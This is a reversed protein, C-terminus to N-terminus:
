PFDAALFDMTHKPLCLHIGDFYHLFRRKVRGQEKLKESRCIARLTPLYEAAAAQRSGLSAFAQSSFVDRLAAERQALVSPDLPAAPSFCFGQRHPGVPLTLEEIADRGLEQCLVQSAEWSESLVAQCKRLSLDALAARREGCDERRWWPDGDVREEDSLGNKIRSASWAFGGRRCIDETGPAEPSLSSDLFSAHDLFEALSGLCRSVLESRRQEAASKPENGTKISLVEPDGPGGEQAPEARSARAATKRLSLFGEESESDSEFMDKGKLELWRRRRMVHSAKVPSDEERLEGGVEPRATPLPGVQADVPGQLVGVPLPLLEELNCYLLDVGQRQCEALLVWRRQSGPVTSVQGKFVSPPDLAPAINHLGLMAETCGTDCRPLGLPTERAPPPAAGKADVGGAAGGGRPAGVPAEAAPPPLPRHLKRGGGSRVWFQLHLLSRRIDCKNLSLLSSFDRADTRVNEALCLLQLYSGVNVMSPTKFHIEEFHGDFLSSFTPDSTTLIVPRKTTAMFTKIAALFGSDDEFIVDVEEFLILSTAAKKGPEEASGDRSGAPKSLAERGQSGSRQDALPNPSGSDREGRKEQSGTDKSKLRAGTKFFSALSTPALGGKKPSARRPSKRPSSVVRRPSNGKRPSGGPRSTSTSTSNFYAPKHANVGQIDVQHSQTAEKLQSLIQRGSRQSSANVEFVKFGLEQACAYVTATKGVGPPGTILVTNCLLDEEGDEGRFDGCDWADASDDEQRKERLKKKEECDARLKWEKLWSHLKKVAVSNGIVESSHQPQYKETWLVDEKVGDASDGEGAAAGATPSDDLVVAEGGDRDPRRRRRARGPRGRGALEAGGTRAGGLATDPSDDAIVIVDEEGGATAAARQRKTAGGAGGAGGEGRKRKGGAPLQPVPASCPMGPAAAMDSSQLLLHESRKKLFWNFFRRVPFLPNSARIEELLCRRVQESFDESCGPGRSTRARPAPTTKFGVLPGPLGTPQPPGPDGRLHKLLRSTPWPLSWLPCDPTEQLVHVVPLFSACSTAYAERSAAMKAIQRKFSEPLGSKLFERRARFQEDDQSNESEDRSSDDFISIIGSQKQAKKGLFLPAVNSGAPSKAAKSAATNKGLVDNLSRLQQTQAAPAPGSDRRVDEVLLVSDEDECYTKRKLDLNRSSRRPTGREEPAAKSKSQQLARAKEVLRKAKRRSKLAGPKKSRLPTMEFDSGDGAKRGSRPYVRSFRMRIPSEKDDPPSLMESRYVGSRFSHARPTSVRAPSGQSSAAGGAGPAPSTLPSPSSLQRASGRTLRRAAQGRVPTSLPTVSSEGGAEAEPEGQGLPAGEAAAPTAAIVPTEGVAGAQKKRGRKKLRSAGPECAPAEETAGQEKDESGAAGLAEASPSPGEGAPDEGPEAEEGPQGPTQDCGDKQKGPGKRAKGRLSEGAPQKFANMFQKREAQSCKPKAAAEIVALELDQEELVVNSRRKPMAPLLETREAEAPESTRGQAGGDEGKRVFISAVRRALEPSRPGGSDQHVEAQVTLTRPSARQPAGPDADARVDVGGPAVAVPEPSEPDGRKEEAQEEQQQKQSELFDEFSITVTSDNLRSAEDVHVELSTDCLSPESEQSDALPQPQQQQEAKTGRSSRADPKGRKGKGESDEGACASAGRSKKALSRRKPPKSKETPSRVSVPEPVESGGAEGEQAEASTEALLPAADGPGGATGGVAPTGGSGDPGPDSIVPVDPSRDTQSDQLQRSLSRGPKRGRRLRQRGGGAGLAESPKHGNERAPEPAGSGGEAPPTRRFYDLINSSRPPSFPKEVAKPMPLFYSTITKAAATEGDKRQRKCPQKEFDEIVSAMAVVGAM